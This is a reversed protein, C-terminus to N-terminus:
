KGSVEKKAKQFTTTDGTVISILDYVMGIIVNKEQISLEKGDELKKLAALLRTYDAKDVLGLRALQKLRNTDVAENVFETEESLKKTAADAAKKSAVAKDLHKQTYKSAATRLHDAAQRHLDAAAKHKANSGTLKGILSKSKKDHKAAQDDHDKAHQNIQHQHQAAAFARATAKGRERSAPTSPKSPSPKSTSPKSSSDVSDNSKRKRDRADRDLKMKMVVAGSESVQVEREKDTDKVVDRKVPIMRIKRKGTNPDTYIETKRDASNKM